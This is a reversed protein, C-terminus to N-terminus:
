TSISFASAKHFTPYVDFDQPGEIDTIRKVAGSLVRSMFDPQIFAETITKTM